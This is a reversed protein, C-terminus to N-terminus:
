LVCWLSKDIFNVQRTRIIKRFWWLVDQIKRQEKEIYISKFFDVNGNVYIMMEDPMGSAHQVFYPLDKKEFIPISNLIMDADIYLLDPTKCCLLLLRDHRDKIINDVGNSCNIEIYKIGKKDALAKTGNLRSRTLDSVQGHTIQM